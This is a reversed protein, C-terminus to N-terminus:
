VRSSERGHERGPVILPGDEGALVKLPIKFARSLHEGTLVEAPPGFATLEGDELLGVLDAYRSVLNLDHMTLIVTQRYLKHGNPHAIDPHGADPLDGHQTLLRIKDLISYQYQLDLHTTPEDLMLVPAAQALARAVLLRQQEGGSLDGIRRDAFELTDTREMAVQAADEDQRTIKGLWNIHPTRGILVMERGTFNEPLRRAQPVVAILRAREAYTLKPVSHGAILISGASLPLIGGLARLLTTKGAGNPGIIGLVKGAPLDFSINKLIERNGLSVSLSKVAIM